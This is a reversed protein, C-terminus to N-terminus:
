FIEGKKLYLPTRGSEQINKPHPISLPCLGGILFKKSKKIKQSRKKGKPFM